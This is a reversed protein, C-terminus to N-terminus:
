IIMYIIQTFLNIHRFVISSKLGYMKWFGKSYLVMLYYNYSENPHLYLYTITVHMILHSFAIFIIFKISLKVSILFSCTLSTTPSSKNSLDLGM